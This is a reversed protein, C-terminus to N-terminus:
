WEPKGETLEHAQIAEVGAQESQWAEEEADWAEQEQEQQADTFAGFEAEGSLAAEDEAAAAEAQAIDSEAQHAAEEAVTTADKIAQAEAEDRALLVRQVVLLVVAAGGVWLAAKVVNNM